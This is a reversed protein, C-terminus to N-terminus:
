MADLAGSNALQVFVLFNNRQQVAAQDDKEGWVKFYRGLLSIAGLKDHFEMHRVPRGEKDYSIRVKKVAALVEPPLEESSVLELEDNNWRAAQGLHTFAIVAAERVTRQASLEYQTVTARTVEAVAQQAAEQRVRDQERDYALAREKWRFDKAWKLWTGSAQSAEPKGIAQRYVARVERTLGAARYKCFHAYAKASEGDQQEGPRM